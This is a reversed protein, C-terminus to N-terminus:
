FQHSVHLHSRETEFWGNCLNHNSLHGVNTPVVVFLLKRKILTNSHHTLESNKHPVGFFHSM